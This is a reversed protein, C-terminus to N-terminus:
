LTMHGGSLKLQMMMDQPYRMRPFMPQMRGAATMVRGKEPSLTTNRLCCARKMLLQQRGHRHGIRDRGRLECNLELDATLGM